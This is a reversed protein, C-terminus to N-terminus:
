GAKVPPPVPAPTPAPAPPPAAPKEEMEGNGDCAGDPDEEPDVCPLNIAAGPKLDADSKIAPNAKILEEKPIGFAKSLGQLTDGPCVVYYLAGEIEGAPEAAAKAGDPNVAASITLPRAPPRPAWGAWVYAPTLLPAYEDPMPVPFSATELAGGVGRYATMFIGKLLGVFPGPAGMDRTSTYIQKPIEVPCTAINVVGRWFKASMGECATEAPMRNEAAARPAACLAAAAALAAFTASPRIKM